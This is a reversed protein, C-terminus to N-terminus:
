PSAKKVEAILAFSGSERKRKLASLFRRVPPADHAAAVVDNWPRLSKAAAIEERKYAEIRSLIDAM